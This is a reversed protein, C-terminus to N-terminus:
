SVLDNLEDEDFGKLADLRLGPISNSKKSVNGVTKGSHSAVKLKEQQANIKNLNGTKIGFISDHVKNFLRKFDKPNQPQKYISFEERFRNWLLNDKDNEPLYEPHNELFENLFTDATEKYTQANLEDKKVFGMEEAQAKILESLESLQESDYKELLKQREPSLTKIKPIDSPVFLEDTREKRLQGKLREVEKRLAWEKPTEGPPISPEVDSDDSATEEEVSENQTEDIEESEENPEGEEPTPTEMEETPEENVSEDVIPQEVTVDELENAM